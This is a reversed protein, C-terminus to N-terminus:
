GLRLALLLSAELQWVVAPALQVIKNVLSPTVLVKAVWVVSALPLVKQCHFTLSAPKVAPEHFIVTVTVSRLWVLVM